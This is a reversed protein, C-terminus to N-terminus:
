HRANWIILIISFLPRWCTSLPLCKIGHLLRTKFSTILWLRLRIKAKLLFNLHCPVSEVFFRYWQLCPPVIVAFARNNKTSIVINSWSAMSINIFSARLWAEIATLYPSTGTPQTNTFTSGSVPPNSITLFAWLWVLWVFFAPWCAYIIQKFCSSLYPLSWSVGWKYKNTVTSGQM